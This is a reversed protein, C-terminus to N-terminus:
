ISTRRAPIKGAKVLQKITNRTILETLERLNDRDIKEATAVNPAITQAFNRDNMMKQQLQQGVPNNAFVLGDGYLLWNTNCGVKWLKEVFHIGFNRKGSLYSSLAQASIGMARALDASKGDFVIKIFYRLRKIKDVM